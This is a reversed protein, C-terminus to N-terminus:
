LITRVETIEGKENSVFETVNESTDEFNINEDTNEYIMGENYPKIHQMIIFYNDRQERTPEIEGESEKDIFQLVYTEHKEKANNWIKEIEGSDNVYVKRVPLITINFTVQQESKPSEEQKKSKTKERYEQENVEILPSKEQNFNIKTDEAMTKGDYYVEESFTNLVMLTVLTTIGLVIISYITYKLGEM